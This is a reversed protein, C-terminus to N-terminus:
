RPIKGLWGATEETGLGVVFCTEPHPHLAAPSRGLCIQTSADHIANGDCKGNVMFSLGSEVAIAVGAEVGDAEWVIEHRELNEWMIKANETWPKPLRARGAGVDSHRWVATPGIFSLVSVALVGIGVPALRRRWPRQVRAAVLSLYAM